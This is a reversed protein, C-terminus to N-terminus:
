PSTRREHRGLGSPCPLPLYTYTLVVTTATEKAAGEATRLECGGSVNSCCAHAARRRHGHRRARRTGCANDPLLRTGSRTSRRTSRCAPPRQGGATAPEVGTAPAPARGRSPAGAAVRRLQRGRGPGPGPRTARPLAAAGRGARFPHRLGEDRVALGARPGPPGRRLALTLGYTAGTVELDGGCPSSGDMPEVCAMAPQPLSALDGFVDRRRACRTPTGATSGATSSAPRALRERRPRGDTAGAALDRGRRVPRRRRDPRADRRRVADRALRHRERRRRPSRLGVPRADGLTAEDPGPPPATAPAPATVVCGM